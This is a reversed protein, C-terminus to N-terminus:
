APISGAPLLARWDAGNRGWKASAWIYPQTITFYFVSATYVSTGIGSLCLPVAAAVAM